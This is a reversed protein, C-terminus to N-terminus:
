GAAEASPPPAPKYCCSIAAARRAATARQRQRPGKRGAPPHAARAPGCAGARSEGHEAAHAAHRPSLPLSPAGWVATPAGAPAPAREPRGAPRPRGGHAGPPRPRRAAPGRSRLRPTRPPHAPTCPLPLHTQYCSRPQVRKIATRSCEVPAPHADRIRLVGPLRPNKAAAEPGGPARGMCSQLATPKSRGSVGKFPALAITGAGGPSKLM